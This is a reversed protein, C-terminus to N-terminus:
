RKKWTKSETKPGENIKKFVALFFGDTGSEPPWLKFFKEGVDGSPVIELEPHAALFTKAVEENESAEVSCTAYYLRGNGALYPLAKELITLQEKPLAEFWGPALKWKADPNRGLTGTGSCPADVLIRDFGRQALKSEGIRDLEAPFINFVGARKARKKLEELKYARLDTAVIRGKNEMMAALLLSKGGGGACVDWVSEGPQPDMKQCVMQSGEDQVEFWGDRFAQTDFVNRREQLILGFYSMITQNAEVGFRRFMDVLKKRSIKLTNARLVLLPRQQFFAVLRETEHVGFMAVWRQVLWLPFSYLLAMMEEKSKSGGEPLLHEKLADYVKESQKFFEHFDERSVLGEKAAAYLCLSEAKELDSMIPRPKAKEVWAELFSKHRFIAFITESLFKRDRSGVKKRNQYFYRALWRDSPMSDKQVGQWVETAMRLQSFLLRRQSDKM